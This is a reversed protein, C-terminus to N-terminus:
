TTGAGPTTQARWWGGALEARERMATIGIHGAVPSEVAALSFGQGDDRIRVRFGGEWEDLRVDVLNARGHRRANNLAEQAIRYLVTRTEGQPETRFDNRIDYTPGGERAADELYVRLAAALGERDLAPP